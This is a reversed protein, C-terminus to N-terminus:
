AVIMELGLSVGDGAAPHAYDRLVGLTQRISNSIGNYVDSLTRFLEEWDAACPARLGSSIKVSQTFIFGRM